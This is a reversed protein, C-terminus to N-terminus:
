IPVIWEHQYVSPFMSAVVHCKICKRSVLLSFEVVKLVSDMFNIMDCKCDYYNRTSNVHLQWFFIGFVGCNSM